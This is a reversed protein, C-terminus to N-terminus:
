LGKNRSILLIALPFDHKRDAQWFYFRPYIACSLVVKCESSYNSFWDLYFVQVVLVFIIDLATHKAVTTM